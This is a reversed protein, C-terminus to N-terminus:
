LLHTRVIEGRNFAEEVSANTAARMRLGLAWKAGNFDQAQVAGFWRVVDAPRQFSISALRQNRLRASVLDSKNLM